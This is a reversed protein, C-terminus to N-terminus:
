WTLHPPGHRFPNVSERSPLFDSSDVVFAYRPMMQLDGLIRVACLQQIPPLAFQEETGSVALTPGQVGLLQHVFQSVELGTIPHAHEIRLREPRDPHDDVNPHM